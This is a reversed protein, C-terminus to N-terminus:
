LVDLEVWLGVTCSCRGTVCVDTWELLLHRKGSAVFGGVNGM